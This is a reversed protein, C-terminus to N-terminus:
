KIIPSKNSNKPTKESRVMPVFRVSIINKEGVEGDQIKTIVKLEVFM